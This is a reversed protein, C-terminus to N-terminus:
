AEFTNAAWAMAEVENKLGDGDGDDDDDKFSVFVKVDTDGDTAAVSAVTAATYGV